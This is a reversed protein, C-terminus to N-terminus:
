AAVDAARLRQAMACLMRRAVDPSVHLVEEFESRILVWLDMATTATVTATRPGGCLTAVEGFFDGTTFTAVVRNGVSCSAAGSLVLLIESTFDGATVLQRGAKVHVRTGIRELKQLERWGCGSFLSIRELTLPDTSRLSRRFSM